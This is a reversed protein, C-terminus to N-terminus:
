VVGIIACCVTATCCALHVCSVLAPEWSFSAASAKAQTVYGQPPAGLYTFVQIVLASSWSLWAITLLWPLTLTRWSATLTRSVVAAIPGPKSGPVLQGNMEPTPALAPSLRTLWKKVRSGGSSPLSGM